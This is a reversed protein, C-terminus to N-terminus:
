WDPMSGKREGLIKQEMEEIRHVCTSTLEQNVEPHSCCSVGDGFFSSKETGHEKTTLPM